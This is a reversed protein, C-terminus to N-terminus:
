TNGRDNHDIVIQQHWTHQLFAIVVATLQTSLISIM